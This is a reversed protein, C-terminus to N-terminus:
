RQDIDLGRVLALQATAVPVKSLTRIGGDERKRSVNENCHDFYRWRWVVEGYNRLTNVISALSTSAM